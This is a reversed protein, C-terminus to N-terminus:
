IGWDKSLGIGYCGYFTLHEKVLSLPLDCFSVMPTSIEQVHKGNEIFRERCFHPRFDNKLIDLLNDINNTFHFLTNSSVNASTSRNNLDPPFPLTYNKM